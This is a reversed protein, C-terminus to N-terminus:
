KKEGEAMRLLEDIFPRPKAAWPLYWMEIVEELTKRRIAADHAALASLDDTRSLVRDMIAINDPHGIMGKASMVASRLEAIRAQQWAVQARLAAIEKDRYALESAIDAKSHLGEKTMALVHKSYHPELEWPKDFHGYEM